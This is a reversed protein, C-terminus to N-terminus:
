KKKKLCFVAYSIKVHSSNLRTSKRDGNNFLIQFRVFLIFIQHHITSATNTTFFSTGIVLVFSKFIYILEFSPYDIIYPLYLLFIKFILKNSLVKNKVLTSCLADRIIHNCMAVLTTLRTIRM